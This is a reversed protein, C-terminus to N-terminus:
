LYLVFSSESETRMSRGVLESREAGGVTELAGPRFKPVQLLTWDVEVVGVILM